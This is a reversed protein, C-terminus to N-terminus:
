VHFRVHLVEGDQVVYDKGELRLTGQERCAGLSGAALLEDWRVVEARIFGRELDSHIAGAAERARTGRPVTWARVEDEGVTFFSLVGLLEYCARVVRDLSPEQWGLEALFARQEAAPLAAIELEIPASTLLVPPDGPAGLGYDEPKASAVRSEDVNLVVLLPKASLLQFGKIKKAEEEELRLGRLPREAELTPLLKEELLKRERQEEATLARKAGKTLRELRRTVVSHDSLILELDFSHVDSGPDHSHASRPVQPSDFARVVHLLGDALKVAELDLRARDADSELGPVDWCEIAAPTYRRPEFLERLRELRPDPVRAIGVSARGAGRPGASAAEHGTLIRFLTTKGVRAYGVLSLKLPM